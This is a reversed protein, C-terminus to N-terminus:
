LQDCTLRARAKGLLTSADDRDTRRRVTQRRDVGSRRDTSVPASRTRREIGTRRDPRLRREERAPVSSLALALLQDEQSPAEGM